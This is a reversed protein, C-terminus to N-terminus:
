ENCCAAEKEGGGLKFRTGRAVYGAKMLGGGKGTNRRKASLSQKYSNKNKNHEEREAIRIIYSM